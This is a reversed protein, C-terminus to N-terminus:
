LKAGLNDFFTQDQPEAPTGALWKNIHRTTTNSWKKETKYFQGEEWSAVPTCYSFLVKKGNHLTIEILNNQIRNLNM